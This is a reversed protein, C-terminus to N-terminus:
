ELGWIRLPQRWLLRRKGGGGGWLSGSKGLDEQEEENPSMPLYHSLAKRTAALNCILAIQERELLGLRARPQRERGCTVSTVRAAM